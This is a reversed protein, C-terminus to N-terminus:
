APRSPRDQREQETLGQFWCALLVVIECHLEVSIHDLIQHAHPAAFPAAPDALDKLWETTCTVVKDPILPHRGRSSLSHRYEM